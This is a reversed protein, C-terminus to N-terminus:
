LGVVSGGDVRYEAGTIYGAQASCLFAVLGAVEDPRGARGLVLGPKFKRFFDAQVAEIPRNQEAAGRAFGAEVGPTAILGPSVTNVLINDRALAKSLSKSLNLAAAKAANYHQFTREPQTAAESAITVIRGGGRARMSPLAARVLRVVSLVNDTFADLFDADALEDFGARRRQGGANNVLIDIGGCRAVTAEALAAISGADAVDAPIALARGGDAVIANAAEDLTAGGRASLVVIAGEAALTAAIARGIGRSAGTVIAVKGDLGLNM